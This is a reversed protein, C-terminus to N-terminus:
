MIHHILIKYLKKKLCFVAYSNAVHSSNLRTSKRDIDIDMLHEICCCGLGEAKHFKSRSGAQPSVADRDVGKVQGPLGTFKFLIGSKYLQSTLDIGGHRHIHYLLSNVGQVTM